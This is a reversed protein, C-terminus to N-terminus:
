LRRCGATIYSTLRDDMGADRVEVTLAAREDDLQHLTATARAPGVRAARLYRVDLDDVVFMAGARDSALTQAATEGLLATIGGQFTATPNMLDPRMAVEAIGPELVRIGVREIFPIALTPREPRQAGLRPDPLEPVVDVPRPSAMFTGVSGAFPVDDVASRLTAESVTLSAGTRLIRGEARYEGLPPGRLIRTRLDVTVAVRPAAAASALVGTVMDSVTFLVSVHPYDTAPVCLAPVIWGWGRGGGEDVVQRFGLDDIFHSRRDM